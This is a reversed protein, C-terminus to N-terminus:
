IFHFIFKYVCYIKGSAGYSNDAGNGTTCGISHVDGIVEGLDDIVLNGAEINIKVAHVSGVGKVRM